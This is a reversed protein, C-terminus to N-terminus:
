DHKLGGMSRPIRQLIQRVILIFSVIILLFASLAGWPETGYKTDIKNGLWLGGIVVIGLRWGIDFLASGFVGAASVANPTTPKNAADKGM